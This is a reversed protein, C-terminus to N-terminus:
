EERVELVRMLPYQLDDRFVIEATVWAKGVHLTVRAQLMEAGLYDYAFRGKGRAKGADIRVRIETVYPQLGVAAEIARELTPATRRAVPVGIFQHFIGGLKIGTEFLAQDRDSELRVPVKRTARRAFKKGSM